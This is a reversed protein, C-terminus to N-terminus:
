IPFCYCPRGRLAAITNYFGM